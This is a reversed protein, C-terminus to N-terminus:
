ALTRMRRASIAAILTAHIVLSRDLGTIRLIRRVQPGPAALCMPVHLRRARRQVGILVALGSADLFTVGTLDIIIRGHREATADLALNLRERLAPVETIDIEGHLEVIKQEAHTPPRPDVARAPPDATLSLNM